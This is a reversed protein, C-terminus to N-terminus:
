PETDLGVSVFSSVSLLSLSFSRSFFSSCLLGVADDEVFFAGAFFVVAFFSVAFALFHPM